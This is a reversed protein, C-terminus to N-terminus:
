QLQFKDLNKIQLSMDKLLNPFNKFMVEELIREEGKDRMEGELIGMTHTNTGQNVEPGKPETRKENDNKREM